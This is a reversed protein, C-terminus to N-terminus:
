TVYVAEQLVRDRVRPKLSGTTGLDVPVGLIEELYQKVDVFQFLGVPRSFEVLLDVDSGPHTDGRAVSGFVALSHVGMAELNERHDHLIQIVVELDM